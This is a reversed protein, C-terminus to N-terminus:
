SGIVMLAIDDDQPVGGTFALISDRVLALSAYETTSMRSFIQILGETGLMQQEGNMVETAGDTYFLLTADRPVELELFEEKIGLDFPLILPGMGELERIKGDSTKLLPPPHGANTYEFRFNSHLIGYFFTISHDEPLMRQLSNRLQDTREKLKGLKKMAMLEMKLMAAILAASPGHGSCDAIFIHLDEEEQWADILDGGIDMVPHYLSILSKGNWQFTIEPVLQNQVVRAMALEKEYVRAQELVRDQLNKIRLFAQIKAVLESPHFPKNIFDDGGNAIAEQFGFERDVATIFLIPLLKFRDIERLEKCFSFGDQGPMFVDLLLIDVEETLLIERAEEASTATLIRFGKQSLTHDLLKLNIPADDVALITSQSDPDGFNSKM